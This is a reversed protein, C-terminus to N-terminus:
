SGSSSGQNTNKMVSELKKPDISVSRIRELREQEEREEKERRTKEARAVEEM